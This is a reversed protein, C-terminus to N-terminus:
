NNDIKGDKNTDLDTFMPSNGANKLQRGEEARKIMNATKRADFEQETITGDNNTDFDQFTSPNMNGKASLVSTLVLACILALFTKTIKM